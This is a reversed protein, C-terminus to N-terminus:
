VHDEQQEKQKVIVPGFRAAERYSNGECSVTLMSRSLELTGNGIHPKGGLTALKDKETPSNDEQQLMETVQALGHSDVGDAGKSETTANSNVTDM